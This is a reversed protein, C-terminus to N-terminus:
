RGGPAVSEPRPRAQTRKRPPGPLGAKEPKSPRPTTKEVVSYPASRNPAWPSGPRPAGELGARTEVSPRQEVPVALARGPTGSRDECRALPFTGLPLPPPSYIRQTLMAPERGAEGVVCIR